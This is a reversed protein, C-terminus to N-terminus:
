CFALETLVGVNLRTKNSTVGLYWRSFFNKYKQPHNPLSNEQGAHALHTCKNM